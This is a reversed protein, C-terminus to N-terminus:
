LYCFRYLFNMKKNKKYKDMFGWGDDKNYILPHNVCDIKKLDFITTFYAETSGSGCGLSFMTERGTFPPLYKSIFKGIEVIKSNM